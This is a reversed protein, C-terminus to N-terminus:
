ALVFVLTFCQSHFLPSRFRKMVYINRKKLALPPIEFCNTGDATFDPATTTSLVDAKRM